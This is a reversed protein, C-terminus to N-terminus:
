GMKKFVAQRNFISEATNIGDFPTKDFVSGAENLYPTRKWEMYEDMEDDEPPSLLPGSDKKKGEGAMPGTTIM